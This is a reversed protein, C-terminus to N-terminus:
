NWTEKDSEGPICTAAQVLSEKFNISILSQLRADLQISERYRSTRISIRSVVEMRGAKLMMFDAGAAATM